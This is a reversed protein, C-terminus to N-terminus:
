DDSLTVRVGGVLGASLNYLFATVTALATLLLTNIVGIVISLSVIRGFGIYDYIDFRKTQTNMGLDGLVNNLQDFVGIGSLVLWLVVSAIVLAIGAAVSLLFSLKLASFPDISAVTLRAVRPTSPDAQAATESMHQQQAPAGSPTGAYSPASDSWSSPGGNVPRTASPASSLGTYAPAAPAAAAATPRPSVPPNSPRSPAASTPNNTVLPKAPSAGASSSLGPSSLGPSSPRSAGGNAVARAAAADAASGNGSGTGVPRTPEKADPTAPKAPAPRAAPSAPRAAPTAPKAVPAAPKAAPTAPKPAPSAPPTPSDSGPTSSKSSVSPSADTTM